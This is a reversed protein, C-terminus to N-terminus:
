GSAPEEVQPGGREGDGSSADLLGRAVALEALLISGGAAGRITNHSLTVFRYDLLPCPRLRGISIAMGAGLDRHLRPQPADQASLYHIPPRPASPLGLRQPEGEFASWAEIVQEPTAPGGLGISVCQTHGDSVPVRNCHASITLPYGEIGEDGLRGLIKAAENEFKEEEGGIYPILNDPVQMGPVGPLGAGSLGQMTVVHCSEVGFADVLPKLALTLGITSCNPNTLVRGSGFQQRAALGLHDPNIEPVVLPVLPHMRHSRANSVVWCGAAAFAVEVGAAVEADLASFALRCGPVADPRCAVVPLEALEEPLSTPQVWRVAQRYPQGVSRESAALFAVTFWPHEALLAAFRQGVSGTAGLVAVPIRDRRVVTM